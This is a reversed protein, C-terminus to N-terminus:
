HEVLVFVDDVRFQALRLVQHELQLLLAFAWADDQRVGFDFGFFDINHQLALGHLRPHLLLLVTQMPHRHPHGPLLVEAHQPLHPHVRLFEYLLDIQLLVDDALGVVKDDREGESVELLVSKEVLSVFHDAIEVFDADDAIVFFVGSPKVDVNAVDVLVTRVSNAIESVGERRADYEMGVFVRGFDEEFKAFFFGFQRTVCEVFGESQKRFRILLLRFSCRASWSGAASSRPCFSGVGLM